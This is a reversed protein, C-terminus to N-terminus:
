VLMSSVRDKAADLIPARHGAGRVSADSAKHVLESPDSLNQLVVVAVCEVFAHQGTLDAHRLISLQCEIGSVALPERFGARGHGRNRDQCDENQASLQLPAQALRRNKLEANSVFAAVVGEFSNRAHRNLKWEIMEALKPRVFQASRADACQKM